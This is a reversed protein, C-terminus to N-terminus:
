LNERRVVKESYAGCQECRSSLGEKVAECGVCMRDVICSAKSDAADWVRLRDVAEKKNRARRWDEFDRPDAWCGKGLKRMRVQYISHQKHKCAYYLANVM